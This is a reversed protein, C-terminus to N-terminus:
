SSFIQDLHHKMHAVYDEALFQLIVPPNEAILCVASAKEPPLNELVHALLLNYSTWLTLLTSWRFTQYCGTANWDEQQYGPGSYEGDIAARVFRQHNNAASDVLHGLIEKRSWTGPGRWRETAHADTWTAMRARAADLTARLANATEATSSM